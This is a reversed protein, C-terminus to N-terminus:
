ASLDCILQPWLHLFESVQQIFGFLVHEGVGGERFVV